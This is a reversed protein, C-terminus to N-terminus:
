RVHVICSSSMCYIWSWKARDVDPCTSSIWVQRQIDKEWYLPGQTCERFRHISLPSNSLPIAFSSPNLLDSTHPKRRNFSCLIHRLETLLHCSFPLMSFCLGARVACETSWHESLNFVGRKLFVSPLQLVCSPVTTAGHCALQGMWLADKMVDEVEWESMGRAAESGSNYTSGTKFCRDAQCIFRSLQWNLHFEM